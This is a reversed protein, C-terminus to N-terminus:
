SIVIFKFKKNKSLYTDEFNNLYKKEDISDNYQDFGIIFKKNIKSCEKLIINIITWFSKCGYYNYQM